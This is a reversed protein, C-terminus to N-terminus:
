GFTITLERTETNSTVAKMDILYIVQELKLRNGAAEDETSLKLLVNQSAALIRRILWKRVKPCIAKVITEL